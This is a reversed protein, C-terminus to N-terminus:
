AFLMPAVIMCQVIPEHAAVIFGKRSPWANAMSAVRIKQDAFPPMWHHARAFQVGWVSTDAGEAVASAVSPVSRTQIVLPAANEHEVEAQLLAGVISAVTV